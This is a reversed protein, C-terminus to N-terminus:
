SKILRRTIIKGDVTIAKIFYIGTIDPTFIHENSDSKPNSEFVTKGLLNYIRFSQVTNSTIIHIDNTTAPNPYAFVEELDRNLPEIRVISSYAFKGDADMQKLRYYVANTSISTDTFSFSHLTKSNGNGNVIGVQSFLNGNNSRQICFFNNNQETATTWNLLNGRVTNNGTFSVFKVPLPNISTISGFTFLNTDSIMIKSQITGATPSGNIILNTEQSKWIHDVDIADHAIKLDVPNTSYIGSYSGSEWFLKVRLADTHDAKDLKWYEKTSIHHLNFFSNNITTPNDAAYMATFTGTSTNESQIGIRAWKNKNGTPFIFETGSQLNVKKVFGDVFSFTQGGEPFVSGSNGIIIMSSSTTLLKGNILLLTGEITTNGTLTVGGATPLTSNDITLSGSLTSPLGTGTIQNGNGNYIYHAGSDFIREGTNKICGSVASQQIGEPHKTLIGAGAQLQFLGKSNGDSLTNMGLDVVGNINCISPAPAGSFSLVPYQIINIDERGITLTDGADVQINHAKLDYVQPLLHTAIGTVIVKYVNNSIYEMASLNILDTLQNKVILHQVNNGNFVLSLRYVEDNANGPFSKHHYSILPTTSTYIFDRKLLLNYDRYQDTGSSAVASMNPNGVQMSATQLVSVIGDITILRQVPDYLKEAASLQLTATNKVTLNGAIRFDCDPFRLAEKGTSEIIFNGQVEFGSSGFTCPGQQQKCDWLITGVQQGGNGLVTALEIGTVQLTSAPSWNASVVEGGDSGHIYYSGSTFQLSTNSSNPSVASNSNNIFNGNVLTKGLTLDWTNINVTFTGDIQFDTSISTNDLLNFSTGTNLIFLKDLPLICAGTVGEKNIKFTIPDGARFGSSQITAATAGNLIIANSTATGSRQLTGGTHTFFSTINITSAADSSSMDLTGSRQYYSGADVITSASGNTLVFVGGTVKFSDLIVLNGASGGKYALKKGNTNKIEFNGNIKNPNAILNFDHPQTSNNWIFHHFVQNLAGPQFANGCALIECVSGEGWSAKPITGATPESSPFNHQYVSGNEFFTSGNSLFDGSNIILSNAENILKGTNKFNSHDNVLIGKNIFTCTIANIVSDNLILKGHNTVSANTGDNVLKGGQHIILDDGPGDIITLAANTNKLIGKIILQDVNHATNTTVTHGQQITIQAHSADPITNATIWSSSTVDWTQWDSTTEWNMLPANSRYDNASQGNGILSLLLFIFLFIHDSISKLYAM